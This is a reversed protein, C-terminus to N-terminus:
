KKKKGAGVSKAVTEAAAAIKVTAAAVTAPAATAANKAAVDAAAAAADATLWDVFKAHQQPWCADPKSAPPFLKDLFDLHDRVCPNETPDANAVLGRVYISINSLFDRAGKPFLYNSFDRVHQLSPTEDESLYSEFPFHGGTATMGSSVSSGIYGGGSVTSLYDIKNLIGAGHLAQLAGLCFAASRIGGGSLSLGVVNSEDTPRLPTTEDSTSLPTGEFTEPELEIKPRDLKGRRENISDKESEFVQNFQCLDGAAM